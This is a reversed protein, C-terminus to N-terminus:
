NIRGQILPQREGQVRHNDRYQLCDRVFAMCLLAAGLAITTAFNCAIAIDPIAEDITGSKRFGRAMTMAADTLFLALFVCSFSILLTARLARSTSVNNESVRFMANTLHRSEPVNTRPNMVLAGTIMGSLLTGAAVFFYLVLGVCSSAATACLAFLIITGSDITRQPVAAKKATAQIDLAHLPLNTIPNKPTRLARQQTQIWECLCETHFVHGETVYMLNSKDQELDISDICITCSDSALTKEKAMQILVDYIREQCTNATEVNNEFKFLLYQNPYFAVPLHLYRILEQRVVEFAEDSDINILGLKAQIANLVERDNQLPTLLTSLRTM